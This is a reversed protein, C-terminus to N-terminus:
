RRCELFLRAAFFRGVLPLHRFPHLLRMTTELATALVGVMSGLLGGLIGGDRPAGTANLMPGTLPSLERMRKGVAGQLGALVMVEM